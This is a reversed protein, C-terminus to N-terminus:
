PFSAVSDVRLLLLNFARKPFRITERSCPLLGRVRRDEPRSAARVVVALLEVRSQPIGAADRLQRQWRLGEARRRM